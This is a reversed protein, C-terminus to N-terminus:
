KTFQPRFDHDGYRNLLSAIQQPAGEAREEAAQNAVWGTVIRRM